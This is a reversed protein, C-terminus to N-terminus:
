FLIQFEYIVDSREQCCLCASSSLLTDSENNLLSQSILTFVTQSNHLFTVGPSAIGEFGIRNPVRRGRFPSSLM